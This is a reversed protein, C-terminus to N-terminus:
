RAAEERPRLTRIQDALRDMAEVLMPGGCVTLAEPVVIRREPPFLATLAPHLLMARGQDEAREEAATVLIADPRLAVIRELSLFGGAELGADGAANDLGAQALLDAVLSRRGAVWGRRSLPLVRLRQSPAAARLRALAGDLAAAAARGREPRGALDAVALIQERSQAITDALDFAVVPIGQSRIMDRTERKMFTMSLVHSPRLVLIEEATGSLIPLGEAHGAAWSRRGDRAFPSLGAIDERDAVALLLQDMCLNISAIRM